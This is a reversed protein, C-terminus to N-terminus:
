VSGKQTKTFYQEIVERHDGQIEIVGVNQDVYFTGGSGTRSKLTKALSKLYTEDTPLATILTVTKGRRGGKDLLVKPHIKPVKVAKPTIGPCDCDPIHKQCCPCLPQGHDDKPYVFDPIDIM